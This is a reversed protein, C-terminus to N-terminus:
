QNGGKPKLRKVSPNKEPRTEQKDKGHSHRQLISKMM